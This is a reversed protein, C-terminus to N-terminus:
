IEFQLAAREALVPVIRAQIFAVHDPHDAYAEFAAQDQFDAVVGFDFNGDRLNLDAGYHYASISDIKQALQFLGDELSQKTDEPADEKLRFLAVHRIM